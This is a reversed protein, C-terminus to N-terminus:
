NKAMRINDIMFTEVKLLEYVEQGYILWSHLKQYVSKMQAPLFVLFFVFFVSDIPSDNQMWFLNDKDFNPIKDEDRAIM